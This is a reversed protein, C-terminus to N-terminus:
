QPQHTTSRTCSARDSSHCKNRPAPCGNRAQRTKPTDIQSSGLLSNAVRSDTKPDISNAISNIGIASVKPSRKRNITQSNLTQFIEFIRHRSEGQPIDPDDDAISFLYRDGLDEATIEIRGDPSHHHKIANSILNAFVQSLLLRKAHLIPMSNIIKIEFSAPPSLSDITEAVIQAVDVTESTLEAKGARSYRLLGDILANMRNVRQRLLKLQPNEGPIYEQLDEEIWEALNSIGRLPAKLDHAAISVFRDLEQNREQLQQQALMLSNNLRQLDVTQTQSLIELQKRDTIDKVAALFYQPIGMRGDPAISRILAVTLNVWM